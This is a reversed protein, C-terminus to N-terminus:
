REGRQPAERWNALVRIYRDLNAACEAVDDESLPASTLRGLHGRLEEMREPSPRRHAIPRSHRQVPPRSVASSVGVLPPTAPPASPIASGM